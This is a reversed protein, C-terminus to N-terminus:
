RFGLRRSLSLGAEVVAPILRAQAAGAFEVAPGSISIAAVTQGSSDRVPAALCRLGIEAEERDEAFGQRRVHELEHLLADQDTLTAPTRQALGVRMISLLVPGPLDALLVKGLGTCHALERAGVRTHYRLPREPEVAALHLVESVDLVGLNATQRTRESLSRLIPRADQDLSTTALYVSGVELSRPALQYKGNAHDFHLWGEGVLCELLRLASPKPISLQQSVQAMTLVPESVSFCSLVALGRQLARVQYNHNTASTLRPRAMM